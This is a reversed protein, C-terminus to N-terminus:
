RMRALQQEVIALVEANGREAMLYHSHGPLGEDALWVLDADAGWSRLLEVTRGDIERTHAMDHDGAVLRIKRGRFGAPDEVVPMGPLVGIRQLLMMPAMAGPFRLAQELSGEVVLPGDMGAQKEIYDRSYVYPKSRDVHFTLGTDAFVAQVHVGDDSVVEGARQINAPYAAAVGVVGVVLDPLREVLAWAIGGGMSHPLLVVPREIVDRLLGVYGEVVDAYDLSEIDRHRSRGSGAWDTVWAEYGRDALLDAWGASGDQTSRWTMGTAGGGHIMVVPHPYRDGAGLIEYYMGSTPETGVTAKRTVDMM